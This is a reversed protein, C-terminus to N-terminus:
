NLMCCCGTRWSPSSNHKLSPNVIASWSLVSFRKVHQNKGEAPREAPFDLAVSNILRIICVYLPQGM